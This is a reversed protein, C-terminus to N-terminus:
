NESEIKMNKEQMDPILFLGKTMSGSKMKDFPM